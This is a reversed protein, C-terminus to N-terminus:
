LLDGLIECHSFLLNQVHCEFILELNQLAFRNINEVDIRGINRADFCRVFRFETSMRSNGHGHDGVIVLGVNPLRNFTHQHLFRVELELKDNAFVTRLVFGAVDAELILFLMGVLDAYEPPMLIYGLKTAITLTNACMAAAFEDGEALPVVVPGVGLFELLLNGQHSLIIGTQANSFNDLQKRVPMLLWISERKWFLKINIEKFLPVKM